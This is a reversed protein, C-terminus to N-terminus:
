RPAVCAGRQRNALCCPSCLPRAVHSCPRKHVMLGSGVRTALRGARARRLGQTFPASFPQAASAARRPAGPAGASSASSAAATAAANRAVTCTRLRAAASRWSAKLRSSASACTDRARGGGAASGLAPYTIHTQGAVVAHLQTVQQVQLSSILRLGRSPHPLVRM